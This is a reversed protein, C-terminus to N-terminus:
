AQMPPQYGQPKSDTNLFREIKDTRTFFETTLYKFNESIHYKDAKANKVATAIQEVTFGEKVRANWKKTLETTVRFKKGLIENVTKVFNEVCNINSNNFWVLGANAVDKALTKSSRKSGKKSRTKSAKKKGGKSGTNARTESLEGDAMMRKQYLSDGLFQIINEHKLEHLASEIQDCTFPMQRSLKRAFSEMPKGDIKDKETLTLVGYVQTKHLICMLKIYVGTAQPSCENLREDNMFDDVYLPLYPQNRLAM